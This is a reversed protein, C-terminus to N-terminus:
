TFDAKYLGQLVQLTTLELQIFDRMVPYSKMQKKGGKLLIVNRELSGPLTQMHM